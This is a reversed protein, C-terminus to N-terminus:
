GNSVVPVNGGDDSTPVCMAWVKFSGDQGSGPAAQVVWGDMRNALPTNTTWDMRGPFSASIPLVNPLKSMDATGDTSQIGGSIAVYNQSDTANTADCAVTAVAGSGAGNPYNQVSYFAGNFGSAGTAGTAGKPGPFGRVGQEGQPGAPGIPGTLGTAGPIM